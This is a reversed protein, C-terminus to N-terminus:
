YFFFYFYLIGIRKRIGEAKGIVRGGADYYRDGDVKGIKRGAYNYVNDGEIRGLTRGAADSVKNGDLRGLTRGSADYVRDGDVKGITRGSASRIYEREVKAITRGSADLINQSQAFLCTGIILLTFLLKLIMETLLYLKGDRYFISPPSPIMRNPYLQNAAAILVTQDLNVAGTTNHHHLLIM